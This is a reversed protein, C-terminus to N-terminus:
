LVNTKWQFINRRSRIIYFQQIFTAKCLSFFMFQPISGSAFIQVQFIYFLLLTCLQAGPSRWLKHEADSIVLIILYISYIPHSKYYYLLSPYHM